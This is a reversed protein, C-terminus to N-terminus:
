SDPLGPKETGEDSLQMGVVLATDTGASEKEQESARLVNAQEMDYLTALDALIENVENHTFTLQGTFGSGRGRRAKEMERAVRLRFSHSTRM